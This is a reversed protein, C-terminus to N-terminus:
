RHHFFIIIAMPMILQNSNHSEAKKREELKISYKRAIIIHVFISISACQECSPSLCNLSYLPSPCMTGVKINWDPYVNIQECSVRKVYAKVHATTPSRAEALSSSSCRTRILPPKAREM